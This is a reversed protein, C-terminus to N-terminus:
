WFFDSDAEERTKIKEDYDIDHAACCGSLDYGRWEDPVLTCFDTKM